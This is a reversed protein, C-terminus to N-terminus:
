IESKKNILINHPLAILIEKVLDRNLTDRKLYM